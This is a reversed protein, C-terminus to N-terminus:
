WPVIFSLDSWIMIEVWKLDLKWIIWETLVSSQPGMVIARQCFAAFSSRWCIDARRCIDLAQNVEHRRVGATQTSANPARVSASRACPAVINQGTPSSVNHIIVFHQQLLFVMVSLWRDPCYKQLARSVEYHSYKLIQSPRFHNYSVHRLEQSSLFAM